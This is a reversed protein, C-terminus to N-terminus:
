HGQSVFYKAIEVAVREAGGGELSPVHFIVERRQSM